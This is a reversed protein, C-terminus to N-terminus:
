KSTAELVILSGNATNPFVMNFNQIGMVYIDPYDTLSALEIQYRRAQENLSIKTQRVQELEAQLKRAEYRVQILTLATVFILISVVVLIRPAYKKKMANM